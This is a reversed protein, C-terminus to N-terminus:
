ELADEDVAVEPEPTDLRCSTPHSSSEDEDSIDQRGIPHYYQPTKLIVDAM